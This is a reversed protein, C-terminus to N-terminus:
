FFIRICIKPSSVLKYPMLDDSLMRNRVAEFMVLGVHARPIDESGGACHRGLMMPLVSVTICREVGWGGM